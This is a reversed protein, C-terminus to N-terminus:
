MRSANASLSRCPLRGTATKSREVIRISHHPLLSM